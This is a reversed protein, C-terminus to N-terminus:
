RIENNASRFRANGSWRSDRDTMLGLVLAAAILHVPKGVEDVM